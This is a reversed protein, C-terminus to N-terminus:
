SQCYSLSKEGALHDVVVTHSSISLSIQFLVMLARYEQKLEVNLIKKYIYIYATMVTQECDGIKEYSRWSQASVLVPTWRPKMHVWPARTPALLAQTSKVSM